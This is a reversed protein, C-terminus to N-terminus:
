KAKRAKLAVCAAEVEILAAVIANRDDDASEGFAVKLAASIRGDRLASLICGPAADIADFLAKEPEVKVVAGAKGAKGAAPAADEKSDAKRAPKAADKGADPAATIAYAKTKPDQTIRSEDRGGILTLIEDKANDCANSMSRTEARIFATLDKSDAYKKKAAAAKVAEYHTQYTFSLLKVLDEAIRRIDVVKATGSAEVAYAPDAHAAVKADRIARIVAGHSKAHLRVTVVVNVFASATAANLTAPIGVVKCDLKANTIAVQTKMNANGKSTPPEGTAGAVPLCLSARFYPITM